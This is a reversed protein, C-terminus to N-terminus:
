RHSRFLMRLASDTFLEDPQGVSQLYRHSNFAVRAVPTSDRTGAQHTDLLHVDLCTHSFVTVGIFQVLVESVQPVQGDTGFTYSIGANYAIM